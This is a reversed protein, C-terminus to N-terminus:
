FRLVLLRQAIKTERQVTHPSMVPGDPRKGPAESDLCLKRLMFGAESVLHGDRPGFQLFVVRRHLVDGTSELKLGTRSFRKVQTRPDVQMATCEAIRFPVGDLNKSRNGIM